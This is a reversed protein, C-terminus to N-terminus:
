SPPLGVFWWLHREPQCRELRVALLVTPMLALDLSFYHKYAM